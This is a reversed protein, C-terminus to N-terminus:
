SKGGGAEALRKTRAADAPSEARWMRHQKPIVAETKQKEAVWKDFDRTIVGGTSDSASAFFIYLGEFDPVRANRRVARELM